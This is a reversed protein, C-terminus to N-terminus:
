KTISEKSLDQSWMDTIQLPSIRFFGSEFETPDAFFFM